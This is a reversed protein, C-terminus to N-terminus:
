KVGGSKSAKEAPDEFATDTPLEARFEEADFLAWGTSYADRLQFSMRAFRKPFMVRLSELLSGDVLMLGATSLIERDNEIDELKAYRMKPYLSLDFPLPWPDQIM